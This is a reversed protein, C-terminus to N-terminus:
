ASVQAGDRDAGPPLGGERQWGATLETRVAWLRRFLPQTMRGVLVQTPVGDLAEVDRSVGITRRVLMYHTFLWTQYGEDVDVLLECIRKLEAGAGAYVDPFTVARRALLRDL